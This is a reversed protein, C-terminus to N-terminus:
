EKKKRGKKPPKKKKEKKGKKKINRCDKYPRDFNPNRCKLTSTACEMHSPFGYCQIEPCTKRRYCGVPSGSGGQFFWLTDNNSGSVNACAATVNQENFDCYLRKGKPLKKHTKAELTAAGFLLIIAVVYVFGAM